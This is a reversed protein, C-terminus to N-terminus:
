ASTHFVWETETSDKKNFRYGNLTFAQLMEARDVRNTLAFDIMQGRARKSYVPITRYRGKHMQKFTVTIMVGQLKKRDIVKSYETSALNILVPDGSRTLEHNVRETVQEQWFQYLNAAGDIALPTAMELRYPQMLDLPRLIGFLGSLIFLHNQAHHLQEKTYHETRIASYADGQFVFLAQRSNATSFPRSFDHISRYTAETLRESTKMLQSLVERDMQKLRDILNQAKEQLAPQSHEEYLLEHFKQTKSPSTILQM